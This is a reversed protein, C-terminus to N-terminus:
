GEAVLEMRRQHRKAEEDLPLRALGSLTEELRLFIAEVEATRLSVIVRDHAAQALWIRVKPPLERQLRPILAPALRRDERLRLIALKGETVISQVGAGICRVKLRALRLLNRVSPPVPRGFRDEIEKELAEVRHEHHVGALRKYLDIRQNLDPAYDTPLYADVPLDVTVQQQETTLEGKAEQVADSIMQMYLEFGVAVVFGHQEAGLLNGAGRIELDRLAIKFGSGLESFERITAIRKEAQDTLRKFPTWMLYAYAQRDSRGIRGRLQYLQALGLHDADSIVMTNANPIDVGNEIITTCM